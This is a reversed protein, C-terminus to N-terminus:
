TIRLQLLDSKIQYQEKPQIRNFLINTKSHLASMSTRNKSLKKVVFPLFSLELYSLLKQYPDLVVIGKFKKLIAVM